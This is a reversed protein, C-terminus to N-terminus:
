VGHALELDGFADHLGLGLLKALPAAAAFGAGVPGCV